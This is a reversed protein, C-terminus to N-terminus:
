SLRLFEVFNSNVVDGLGWDQVASLFPHLIWLIAQKIASLHHVTSITHGATDSHAIVSPNTDM